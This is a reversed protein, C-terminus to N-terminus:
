GNLDGPCGTDVIGTDKDDGEIPWGRIRQVAAENDTQACEESFQSGVFCRRRHDEGTRTRAKERRSAIDLLELSGARLFDFPPHTVKM